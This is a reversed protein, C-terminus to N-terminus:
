FLVVSAILPPPAHSFIERVMVILWKLDLDTIRGQKGMGECNKKRFELYGKRGVKSLNRSEFFGNRQSVFEWKRLM